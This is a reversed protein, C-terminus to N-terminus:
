FEEHQQARYSLNWGVLRKSRRMPRQPYIFKCSRVEIAVPPIEPGQSVKGSLGARAPKEDALIVSFSICPQQSAAAFFHELAEADEARKFLRPTLCGPADAPGTRVRQHVVM